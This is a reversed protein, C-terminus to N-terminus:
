TGFYLIDRNGGPQPYPQFDFDITFETGSAIVNHGTPLPTTASRLENSYSEKMKVPQAEASLAGSGTTTM